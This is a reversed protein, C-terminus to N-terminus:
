KTLNEQNPLDISIIDSTIEIDVNSLIPVEAVEIFGYSSQQFLILLFFASVFLALKTMILFEKSM